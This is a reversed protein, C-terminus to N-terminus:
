ATGISLASLCGHAFAECPQRAVPIHPSCSETGFGPRPAPCSGWTTLPSGRASAHFIIRFCVALCSRFFGGPRLAQPSSGLARRDARLPELARHAKRRDDGPVSRLARLMEVDTPFNETSCFSGLEDAVAVVGFDEALKARADRREEIRLHEGGTDRM